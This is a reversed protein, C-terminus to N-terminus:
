PTDMYDIRGDEPNRAIIPCYKGIKRRTWWHGTALLTRLDTSQYRYVVARIRQPRGGAFPDEAFLRSVKPSGELLGSATRFIFPNQWYPLPDPREVVRKMEREFRDSLPSLFRPARDLRQTQWSHGYEHWTTGGDDSGELVVVRRDKEIFPYLIYQNVSRFPALAELVKAVPGPMSLNPFFPFSLLLAFAVLAHPVLVAAQRADKKTIKEFALGGMLLLGLGIAQYNFALFNGSLLIGAQLACWLACAVFRARRGFFLLFPVFVEVVLTFATEARQFVYPLKAFLWGVWTPFPMTEHFYAMASLDRWAPDPSFAKTLGTEFMLRFLLWLHAFLAIRSPPDGKGLGPKAGKPALFWALFAAELLLGDAKYWAFQPAVSAFSLFCIWFLFLGIRNWRNCVVLFAGAAGLGCAIVLAADSANLWFLSPAEFFTKGRLFEKAPLVGESGILGRVQLVISLFTAAYCGGL